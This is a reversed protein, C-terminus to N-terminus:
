FLSTVQKRSLKTTDSLVVWNVCENCPPSTLSGAYTYYVSTDEPLLSILPFQGIKAEQGSHTVYFRDRICM